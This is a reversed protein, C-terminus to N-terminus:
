TVELKYSFLKKGKKKKKEQCYQPKFELNGAQKPLFEVIVTVDAVRRVRKSRNTNLFLRV